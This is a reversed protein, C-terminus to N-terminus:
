MPPESVDNLDVFITKSHMYKHIGAIGMGSQKWGAGPSDIMGKSFYTNVYIQGGQIGQAVRHARPVDKSFVAGALGYDTTNALRLGEAEGEFPTVCAVPGFIEEKFITMDPTVDAFITPPVFSGKQLEPDTYPEGGCILRAGEKKGKEIYGWVTKAHDPHILSSFNVGKEYDFGNGPRFYKCVEAMAELFPEYIPKEVFIRTGSVCVQGSHLTFGHVAWKAMQKVDVDGFVITPSKGGLELAIPKVTEISNKLIERGTATGGTMSVMDVLKNKVLAAGVEGGSGTVVNFVGPPFGAADMVEALLLLSASAWQPPKVVVTNGAALIGGLKQCGMMLPGNWPLIEGVVGYPYWDVYNLYNGNMRSSEGGLTRAKHSYFEFADVSQPVEYYLASMYQKAADLTEVIAFEESRSALIEGAKKLLQGRELGSMRGWPGEDFAQRAALIAKQADAEGGFYGKGFAEGTAPNVFDFTKGSVSEVFEGGIYLKYTDKKIKGLFDNM